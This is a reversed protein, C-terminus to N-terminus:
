ERAKRVEEILEEKGEFYKRAPELMSILERGVANKLDVPHLKGAEFAKKLEHGNAFQADGGFKADREIKLPRDRLVFAEAMEIVPNGEVIKEPCHAKKMKRTIEEVSDHVFICSNPNSKSMKNEIM